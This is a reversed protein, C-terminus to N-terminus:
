DTAGADGSADTHHASRSSALPKGQGSSLWAQVSRFGAGHGLCLLGRRLRRHSDGQGDNGDDHEREDAVQM